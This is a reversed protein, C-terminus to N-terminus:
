IKMVVERLLCSRVKELAGGSRMENGLVDYVTGRVMKQIQQAEKQTIGNPEQVQVTFNMDGM